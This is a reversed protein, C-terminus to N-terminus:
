PCMCLVRSRRADRSYRSCFQRIVREMVTDAKSVFSAFLKVFQGEGMVVVAIIKNGFSRRCNSATYNKNNIKDVIVLWYKIKSLPFSTSTRHWVDFVWSALPCVRRNWFVTFEYRSHYLCSMCVRTISTSSSHILVFLSVKCWQSEGCSNDGQYGVALWHTAASM